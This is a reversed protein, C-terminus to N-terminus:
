RLRVLRQTFVRGGAALRVFYLGAPASGRETRGDWTVVRRGAPFVGDALVAVERGQLDLVSLRARIERPLVFGFSGTGRMPSPCAPELALARASRDAASGEERVDLIYNTGDANLDLVINGGVEHINTAAVVGACDNARYYSSTNPVTTPTFSTVGTASSYFDQWGSSYNRELHYLGDAQEVSLGYWKEGNAPNAPLTDCDCNKQGRYVGGSVCEAENPRWYTRSM